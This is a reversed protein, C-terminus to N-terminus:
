KEKFANNKKEEKLHDDEAAYMHKKTYVIECMRYGLCCYKLWWPHVCIM